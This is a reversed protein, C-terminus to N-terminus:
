ISCHTWQTLLRYTNDIASTNLNYLVSEVVMSEVVMAPARLAQKPFSPNLHISSSQLPNQFIKVQLPFEEVGIGKM